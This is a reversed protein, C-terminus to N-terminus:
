GLTGVVDHSGEHAATAICQRAGRTFLFATYRPAAIRRVRLRVPNPGTEFVTKHLMRMEGLKARKSTQAGHFETEGDDDDVFIPASLRGGTQTNPRQGFRQLLLAHLDDATKGIDVDAHHGILRRSRRSKHDGNVVFLDILVAHLTLRHMVQAFENFRRTSAIGVNWDKQEAFRAGRLMQRVVYQPLQVTEDVHEFVRWFEHSAVNQTFRVLIKARQCRWKELFQQVVGVVTRIRPMAGAVRTADREQLTWDPLHEMLKKTFVHQTRVHAIRDFLQALQEVVRSGHRGRLAVGRADKAGIM